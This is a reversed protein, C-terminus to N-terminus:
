EHMDGWREGPPIAAHVGEAWRAHFKEAHTTEGVGNDEDQPQEVDRPESKSAHLIQERELKLQMAKKCKGVTPLETSIGDVELRYLNKARIGVKKFQGTEKHRLFFKGESFVVEYGKDELMAVSILNKKLGPVYM